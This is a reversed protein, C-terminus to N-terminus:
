IGEDNIHMSDCSAPLLPPSIPNSDDTLSITPACPGCVDSSSTIAGVGRSANIARLQAYAAPISTPSCVVCSASDYCHTLHDLMRKGPRCWSFKCLCSQFDNSSCDRIHLMLFKTSKCVNAHQISKHLGTCTRAHCMLTLLKAGEEYSFLGEGDFVEREKDLEAMAAAASSASSASGAAADASDISSATDTSTFAADATLTLLPASSSGGEVSAGPGSSIYCDDDDFDSGDDCDEECSDEVGEGYLAQVNPDHEISNVPAVIDIRPIQVAQCKPCEQRVVAWWPNDSVLVRYKELCATCTYEASRPKRPFPVIQNLRRRRRQSIYEDVGAAASVVATETSIAAAIQSPQHVSCDEVTHDYEPGIADLGTPISQRKLVNVSGDQGRAQGGLSPASLARHVPAVGFASPISSSSSDVATPVDYSLEWDGGYNSAIGDEARALLLLGTNSNNRPIPQPSPAPLADLSVSAIKSGSPMLLSTGVYTMINDGDCDQGHTSVPSGPGAPSGTGSGSGTSAASSSSSISLMSSSLRAVNGRSLATRHLVKAGGRTSTSSSMSGDTSGTDSSAYGSTKDMSAADFDIAKSLYKARAEGIRESTSLDQM